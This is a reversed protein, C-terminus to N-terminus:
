AAEAILADAEVYEAILDHPHDRGNMVKGSASWIEFEDGLEGAFCYTFDPDLDRDVPTSILGNRAVYRKGHELTFAAMVRGGAARRPAPNLAARRARAEAGIRDANAKMDAAWATMEAAREALSKSPRDVSGRTLVAFMADLDSRNNLKNIQM